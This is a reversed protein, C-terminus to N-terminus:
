GGVLKFLKFVMPKTQFSPNWVVWLKFRQFWWNKPGLQKQALSVGEAVTLKFGTRITQFWHSYNSVLEFPKTRFWNTPAWPAESPGTFWKSLHPRLVPFWNSYNSFVAGTQFTVNWVLVLESIKFKWVLLRIPICLILESVWCILKSVWFILESVWFILKSVWIYTWVGLIYTWVGLIYTWFVLFSCTFVFMYM